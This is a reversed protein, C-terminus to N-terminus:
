HSDETRLMHGCWPVNSAMALQDITENLGFMLILEKSRKHRQATCRENSDGHIETRLIGMESKEPVM